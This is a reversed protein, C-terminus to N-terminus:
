HPISGVMAFYSLAQHSAGDAADQFGVHSFIAIVPAQSLSSMTLPLAGKTVGFRPAPGPTRTSTFRCRQDRASCRCSAVACSSLTASTYGDFAVCSGYM